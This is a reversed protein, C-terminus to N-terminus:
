VTGDNQLPLTGVRVLPIALQESVHDTVLWGAIWVGRATELVDGRELVAHYVLQGPQYVELLVLKGDRRVVTAAEAHVTGADRDARRLTSRRRRRPVDRRGGDARRSDGHAPPRRALLMHVTDSQSVVDVERRREVVAQRAHSPREVRVQSVHKSLLRGHQGAQVLVCLVLERDHTERRGAFTWWTM